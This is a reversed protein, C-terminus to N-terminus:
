APLGFCAGGDEDPLWDSRRRESSALQEPFAVWVFKYGMAPNRNWASRMAVFMDERLEVLHQM